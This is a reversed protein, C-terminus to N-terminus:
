VAGRLTPRVTRGAARRSAAKAARLAELKPTSARRREPAVATQQKGGQQRSEYAELSTIEIRVSAGVKIWDFEGKARLRDITRTSLDLRRAAKQKSLYKQESV